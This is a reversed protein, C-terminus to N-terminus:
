AATPEVDEVTIKVVDRERRLYAKADAIMEASVDATRLLCFRAGQPGALEWRFAVGNPTIDGYRLCKDYDSRTFPM